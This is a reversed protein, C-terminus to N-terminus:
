NATIHVKVTVADGTRVGMFGPTQMGFDSIKLNASGVITYIGNANSVTVPVVINKSKGAIQMTGTIISKGLKMSAATFSITPATKAKLAEHAKGDMMRGKTSKLSQAPTTFKVKNIVNGNVEAGFTGSSSSMTWNHMPSTGEVTIKVSKGTVSQASLNTLGTCMVVFVLALKFMYNKM